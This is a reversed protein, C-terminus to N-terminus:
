RLAHRNLRTAGSSEILDVPWEVSNHMAKLAINQASRFKVMFVRVRNDPQWMSKDPLLKLGFYFYFMFCLLPSFSFNASSCMWCDINPPHIKAPSGRFPQSRINEGINAFHIISYVAFFSFATRIFWCIHPGYSVIRDISDQKMQYAIVACYIAQMLGHYLM